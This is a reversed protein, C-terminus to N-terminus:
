HDDPPCVEFTLHGDHETVKLNRVTLWRAVAGGAVFALIHTGALVVAHATDPDM